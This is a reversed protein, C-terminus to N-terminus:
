GGAGTYHRVGARWILGSAVVAWLAMVPTLWPLWSPLGLTDGRGLIAVLPLYATFAAPVVFTFFRGLVPGLVGIPWQSLYGSGYSIANGVESGDVLWFCLAGSTVFLSGFLVTGTVPALVLLALRSATWDIDVHSLALALTAAAVGLRGLRRLQVEYAAVQWLPSLPRLLHTQFTGKRIDVSIGDVSGVLFDALSFSISALGFLLFVEAFSFGGIRPVQTFIALVELFDIAIVLGSGLLQIVFSTRYTAEGALTARALTLYIRM